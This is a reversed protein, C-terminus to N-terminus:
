LSLQTRVVEKDDFPFKTTGIIQYREHGKGAILVVDGAQALAMGREIAEKRSSIVAHGTPSKTFGKEIDHFIQNQDETRPNDSTIIVIDSFQEAIAAMHPRKKRDRDGGCGFITIIKRHPLASLTQLVNQLADPTHAYDVIATIGRAESSVIDMRGPIGPIALLTEPLSTLGLIDLVAYVCTQNYVNFLGIHNSVVPVEQICWSSQHVALQPSTITYPVAQTGYELIRAKTDQVMYSAYADDANIIAFAHPKLMDFFKKKASAYADMTLHYDLHDQTLNTYLAFAFDVGQVRGQELAHSSVEMCVFAIGADKAQKLYKQLSIADLTTHHSASIEGHIINSITSLLAVKKQQYNLAHYLSYVISTKGNTGTVGIVTLDKSPNGFFTSAMTGMVFSTSPVQIYCVTDSVKSPMHECVIAVAGNTIADDIYAHGDVETGVVAFFLGGAQVTRSDLSLQSIDIDTSGVMNSISINTLIDKLQM